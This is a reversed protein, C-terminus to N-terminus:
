PSTRAAVPMPRLALLLVTAAAVAAGISFTLAPGGVTWLIGAGASAFFTAIGIALEYIGFATGRLHEPAADAVAASLLGQTVGMQLGWLAAGLATLWLNDAGALVLDAAVLLVSGIGLQLRRDFRDALVGFPYAAASYVLYMLVLMIPVYASDIGVDHTKLVIFAPSFRALSLIAAVSVAWWLPLALRTLDTRRIPFHREHPVQRWPPEKVGFYLVAVSAFGPIAAVWFVLRFDDGSLRMLGIAILPGAVAGITYLALRLGFGAGRIKSPTVDTLLADRPADRIGKGIRDVVRALLVASAAGALPFLLKNVASLGYGLLVLPKRRGIWDSTVGSFIKTLSNTAEALGEIVGVSTMSAGLVTVLFVPLLGYIMASSMGMLLSVVGLVVINPSLRVPADQSAGSGTGPIRM